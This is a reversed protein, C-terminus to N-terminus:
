LVSFNTGRYSICVPSHHLRFTRYTPGPWQERKMMTFSQIHLCDQLGRPRKPSLERMTNRALDASIYAHMLLGLLVKMTTTKGAVNPGLVGFVEGPEISLNM